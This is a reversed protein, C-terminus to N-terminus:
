HAVREESEYIDLNKPVHYTKLCSPTYEVRRQYRIRGDPENLVFINQEGVVVLDTRKSVNNRHLKL